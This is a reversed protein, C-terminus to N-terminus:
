DETLIAHLVRRLDRDSQAHQHERYLQDESLIKVSVDSALHPYPSHLWQETLEAAVKTASDSDLGYIFLRVATM